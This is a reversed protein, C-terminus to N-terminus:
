RASRVQLKCETQEMPTLPSSRFWQYTSIVSKVAERQDKQPRGRRVDALTGPLWRRFTKPQGLSKFQASTRWKSASGIKLSDFELVLEKQSTRSAVQSRLRRATRLERIGRNGIGAELLRAPPACRAPIPQLPQERLHLRDDGAASADGRPPIQQCACRRRVDPDRPPRRGVRRLTAACPEGGPGACAM